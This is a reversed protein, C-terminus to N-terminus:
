IFVGEDIVAQQVCCCGTHRKMVVNPSRVVDDALNSCVRCPNADTVRVWGPIERTIMALRMGWVAAEAASDRGLRAFRARRAAGLDKGGGANALHDGLITGAAESLRDLDGDPLVLGLPADRRRLARILGATLTVDALNIGRTRARGLVVAALVLFSEKDLAGRTYRDYAAVLEQETRDALRAVGDRFTTM